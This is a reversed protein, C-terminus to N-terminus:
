ACKRANATKTKMASCSGESKYTRCPMDMQILISRSLFYQCAKRLAASISASANELLVAQKASTKSTSQTEARIVGIKQLFAPFHNRKETLTPVTGGRKLTVQVRNLPDVTIVYYFMLVGFTSVKTSNGQNECEM